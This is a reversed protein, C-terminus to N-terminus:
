EFNNTNADDQCDFSKSLNEFLDNIKINFSFFFQPLHWLTMDNKFALCGLFMRIEM